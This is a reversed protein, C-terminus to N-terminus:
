CGPEAKERGWREGGQRETAGWRTKLNEMVVGLADHDLESFSSHFVHLDCLYFDEFCVHYKSM